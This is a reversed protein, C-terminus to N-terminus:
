GTRRLEALQVALDAVQRELAAVRDERRAARPRGENLWAQVLRLNYRRRGYRDTSEEMPMGEKVKLEVWRESRGLLTALQKKTLLTDGRSPLSVVHGGM